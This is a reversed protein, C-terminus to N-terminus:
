NNGDNKEPIKNLGEIVKESRVRYVQVIGVIEKEREGKRDGERKWRKEILHRIGNSQKM